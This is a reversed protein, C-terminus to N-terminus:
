RVYGAATLREIADDRSTAEAYIAEPTPRGARAVARGSSNLGASQQRVNVVKNFDAGDEVAKRDAKSLGSVLGREMLSVPDQTVTPNAVSTPVMVCDCGPHRLFSSSYRYVRGALVACRSCSPPSLYRVYGAGPRLTTAVSEASRGSDAVLGAVLRDFEFDVRVQELMGMLRDPPTTFAMPNLRGEADVDMDQQALMQGVARQGQVAAALQHKAVALVVARIGAPRAQNAERVAREVLAASWVYHRRAAQPVPVPV